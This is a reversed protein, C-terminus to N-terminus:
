PTDRGVTRTSASSRHPGHGVPICWPLEVTSGRNPADAPNAPGVCAAFAVRVVLRAYGQGFGGLGGGKNLSLLKSWGMCTCCPVEIHVQLQPWLCCWISVWEFALYESIMETLLPCVYSSSSRLAIKM